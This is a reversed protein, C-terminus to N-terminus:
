TRWWSNQKLAPVGIRSRNNYSASIIRERYPSSISAIKRYHYNDVNIENTLKSIESKKIIRTQKMDVVKSNFETGTLFKFDPLPVYSGSNMYLGENFKAVRKDPCDIIKKCVIDYDLEQGSVKDKNNLECSPSLIMYCENEKDAVPITEIIDCSLFMKYEPLSIYQIDAPLEEDTTDLDIENKVYNLMRQLQFTEIEEFDVARLGERIYNNFRKRLNDINELKELQRIICDRVEREQTKSFLSVLNHSPFDETDFHASFIMIPLFENVGNWINSFIEMGPKEIGPDKKLDLVVLHFRENNLLEMAVSFDQKYIVKVKYSDTDYNTDLIEQVDTQRDDVVLLKYEKM